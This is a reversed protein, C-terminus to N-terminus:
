FFFEIYYEDNTAEPPIAFGRAADRAAEAAQIAAETPEVGKAIDGDKYAANVKGVEVDVAANAAARAADPDVPATLRAVMETGFIDTHGAMQLFTQLEAVETPHLRMYKALAAETKTCVDKELPLLVDEGVLTTARVAALVDNAERKLVEINNVDRKVTLAIGEIEAPIERLREVKETVTIETELRHSIRELESKEDSKIALLKANRQISADIKAKLEKAAALHPLFEAVNFPVVFPFDCIEKNLASLEIESTNLLVRGMFGAIKAYTAAPGNRLPYPKDGYYTSNTDSRNAATKELAEQHERSLQPAEKVFASATGKKFGLGGGKALLAIVIGAVFGVGGWLVGGDLAYYAFTKIPILSEYCIIIGAVAGAGALIGSFALSFKLTFRDTWNESSQRMLKQVREFHEAEKDPAPKQPPPMTGPGMAGGPGGTNGPGPMAMLMVSNWINRATAGMWRTATGYCPEGYIGISGNVGAIGFGPAMRIAPRFEPRQWGGVFERRVDRAFGRAREKEKGRQAYERAKAGLESQGKGLEIPGEGPM